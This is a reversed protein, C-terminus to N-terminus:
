HVLLTFFCSQNIKGNPSLLCLRDYVEDRRLSAVKRILNSGSETSVEDSELKRKQCVICLEKKYLNNDNKDCM